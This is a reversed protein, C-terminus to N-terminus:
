ASTRLDKWEVPEHGALKKAHGAAFAAEPPPPSWRLRQMVFFDISDTCCPFSLSYHSLAFVLFDISVSLVVQVHRLRQIM